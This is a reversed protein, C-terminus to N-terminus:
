AEPHRALVLVVPEARLSLGDEAPEEVEQVSPGSADPADLPHAAPAAVAVPLYIENIRVFSALFRRSTWWQSIHSRIAALKAHVAWEPLEVSEWPADTIFIPLIELPETMGLGRPTPWAGGFSHILYCRVEPPSGEEWADRAERVASVTFQYGARHDPHADLPHPAYIITPRFRLLIQVLDDLLNEGSYLRGPQFAIESYKAIRGTFPSRFPDLSQWHNSLLQTLGRDPYNLFIARDAPVGLAELARVAEKQRRSGLARFESPLNFPHMTILRKGALNADGSTLFVVLLSAGDATAKAMTGGVGLVDDDPHPSIVLIREGDHVALPVSGAELPVFWLVPSQLYVYLGILSMAWVVLAGMAWRTWRRRDGRTRQTM